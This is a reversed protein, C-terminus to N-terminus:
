TPRSPTLLPNDISMRRTLTEAPMPPAFHYGQATDCGLARLEAVAAADEVGEAVVTLGLNHGLEVTSAVLARSSPDAAMDFVFSRDIKLEDVPLLKLYTMSSYGTGYDDISVKVGLGRVRHLAEITTAPDTMVTHETIEICLLEGPIGAHEIHAAVRECFAPDLLSRTSVNVAVPIRHGKDLWERTQRTAQALVHDTFRHILTTTELIPVFEAPSVPGRVPHQWRALAEMGILAGSEICIKPQYHLTLQGTDDLARRLDGLLTLRAAADQDNEPLFRRFGAHSQKATHMAADAQRMLTAADAGPQATAAGISVELDVTVDDLVFPAGFAEALRAAIGEGVKPDSDRILVAFEDGGLRAVADEARVAEAVRRGSETLLLDGIRQGLQDNVARFGDLNVILVTAHDTRRRSDVTRKQAGAELAAETRAAFEARNPLGTLADTAALKELQRRHARSSLGFVILLVLGVGLIGISQWVLHKSEQLSQQEHRAYEALHATKEDNLGAVLQAHMPEIDNEVLADAAEADEARLLEVYRAIQPELQHQLRALLHARGLDLDDVAAVRDLATTAQGVVGLLDKSEEGLPEYRTAQLLSMETTALYAAEQYADTETGDDALERVIATQQRSTYVSYGLIAFLVAVLVGALWRQRRRRGMRVARANPRVNSLTRTSPM